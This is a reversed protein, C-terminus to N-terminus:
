NRAPFIGEVAMCFNMVLSPQMNEHSTGFAGAAGVAGPALSTSGGGSVYTDAGFRPKAGLVNGAPTTAAALSATAVVAHGHSPLESAVLRVNEVGGVQGLQVADSGGPHVPARGRLDPLAFNNQGDGGYTTGLIAFVATYQSIPLLQGQCFMWGRPAFNFGFIRIEGLFPLSM